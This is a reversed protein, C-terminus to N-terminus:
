VVQQASMGTARAHDVSLTDLLSLAWKWIYDPHGQACLEAWQVQEMSPARLGHQEAWQSAARHVAELELKIRTGNPRDKRHMAERQFADYIPQAPEHRPRYPDFSPLM